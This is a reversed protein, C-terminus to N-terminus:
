TMTLTLRVGHKTFLEKAEDSNLEGRDAIVQSPCMQMQLVSRSQIDHNTIVTSWLAQGEM